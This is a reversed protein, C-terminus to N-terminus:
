SVPELPQRRSSMELFDLGMLGSIQDAPVPRSFYYGQALTCNLATLAYVQELTEVGEAIVSLRLDAALGMVSRVINVSASDTAIDLVFQRDLKLTTVLMDKLVSLSSYGTGFDDIAVHVGLRHLEGCVRAYSAPNRTISETVEIELQDPALGTSHLISEVTHLFDPSEFHSASVNVAMAIPPMGERRWLVAQRCATELVWTGLDNMLGMSEIEGIFADPAVRGYGPRNWRVLAEVGCMQGTTLSVLPQYYLEFERNVVGVQLASKLAVRQQLAETMFPEYVAFRNKGSLKAAYMAVDAAKMLDYPEMGDVPYFAIGMSASAVMTTAGLEYPQALADLCRQAVRWAESNDAITSLLVCFEDGGLRAVMDGSSIQQALRRAADQLVKDGHGHGLSDNIDKFGDMDLFLLAFPTKDRKASAITQDLCQHFRNRNALGTLSDAYALQFVEEQVRHLQSIDKVLLVYSDASDHRAAIKIANIEIQKPKVGVRTLTLERRSADHELMSVSDINFRQSCGARAFIRDLTNGELAVRDIGFITSAAPNVHMVMGGHDVLVLGEAMKAWIPESVDPDTLTAIVLLYDDGVELASIVVPIGVGHADLLTWAQDQLLGLRVLERLTHFQLQQGFLTALSSSALEGQSYGLTDRMADSIECIGRSEHILIRLNGSRDLMTNLHDISVTNQHLRDRASSIGAFLTAFEDALKPGECFSTLDGKGIRSSIDILSNFGVTIRRRLLWQTAVTSLLLLLLLGISAPTVLNQRSEEQGLNKIAVNLDALVRNGLISDLETEAQSLNKQLTAKALVLASTKEAFSAIQATQSSLEQLWSLEENSVVTKKYTAEWQLYFQYMRLSDLRDAERNLKVYLGLDRVLKALNIEMKAVSILRSPNRLTEAPIRDESLISDIRDAASATQVFLATKQKSIDLLALSTTRYLSYTRALDAVSKAQLLPVSQELQGLSEQALRDHKELRNAIAADDQEILSFLLFSAERLHIEFEQVNGKLTNLKTEVVGIRHTNLASWVALSAILVAGISLATIQISLKRQLM